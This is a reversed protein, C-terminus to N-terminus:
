LRQEDLADLLDSFFDHLAPQLVLDIVSLFELLEVAAGFFRFLELLTQQPKCLEGLVSDLHGVECRLVLTMDQIKEHIVLAGQELNVLSQERM